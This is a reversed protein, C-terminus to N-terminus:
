PTGTKPQQESDVPMYYIVGLPAGCNEPDLWEM